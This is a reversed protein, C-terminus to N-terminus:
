PGKATTHNPLFKEQSRRVRGTKECVKILSSKKLAEVIVPAGNTLYFLRAYEFWTNLHLENMM